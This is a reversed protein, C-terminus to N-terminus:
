QVRGSALCESEGAPTVWMSQFAVDFQKLNRIRFQRLSTLGTAAGVETSHATMDTNLYSTRM